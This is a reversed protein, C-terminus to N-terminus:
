VSNAERDEDSYTANLGSRTTAMYSDMTATAAAVNATNWTISKGAQFGFNGGVEVADMNAGLFSFDWDYKDEQRKILNKIGEAKWERSSNEYGDTVVVVMVKGPRESEDMKDLKAGLNVVGTGIADLLATGGSPILLAKAESVDADEYALEVWTDFTIYDVLAKGPLKAQSEFVANIGGIMDNAISYMSGSSDVILLLHTYDPNTM